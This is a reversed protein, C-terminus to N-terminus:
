WKGGLIADDVYEKIAAIDSETWYDTGREPTRGNTVNIRMFSGDTLIITYTDVLGSSYSYGMNAIGVGDRGVKVIFNQLETFDVTYSPENEFSVEYIDTM